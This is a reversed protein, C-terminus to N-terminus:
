SIVSRESVFVAAVTLSGLRTRTALRPFSATSPFAYDAKSDRAASRPWPAVTPRSPRAVDAQRAFDPARQPIRDGFDAGYYDYARRKKADGLIEYAERVERFRKAASEDGPNFDPHYKRALERYARRIERSSAKRSVKLIEYLDGALPSATPGTTEDQPPSV